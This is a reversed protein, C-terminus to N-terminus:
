KRKYFYMIRNNFLHLEGELKKALFKCFENAKGKDGHTAGEPLIVEIYMQEETTDDSTVIEEIGIGFVIYKYRSIGRSKLYFYQGNSEPVDLMEYPFSSDEYAWDVQTGTKTTISQYYRFIDKLEELTISQQKSGEVLKIYARNSM